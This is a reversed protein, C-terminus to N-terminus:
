QPFNIIPGNAGSNGSICISCNIIFSTLARLVRARTRRASYKPLSKKTNKLQILLIQEVVGYLLIFLNATKLLLSLTTKIIAFKIYCLAKIWRTHMCLIYHSQHGGSRPSPLLGEDEREM